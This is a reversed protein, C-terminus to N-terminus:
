DQAFLKSCRILMACVEARGAGNQPSLTTASTGDVVGNIKAWVFATNAWESVQDLDTYQSMNIMHDGTLGKGKSQAYRYLMSVLQERTIQGDPNSGDSVGSEMAWAAAKEYWTSGGSLDQGDLRALVTWAMARTMAASPAFSGDDAGNFLKAEYAGRVVGYYWDTDAVDAFPLPEEEVLAYISWHSQPLSVKGNQYTAGTIREPTGDPPLFFVGLSKSADKKEYQLTVMVTGGGFDAGKGNLTFEFATANDRLQEPLKERPVPTVTITAKQGGAGALIRASTADLTLTVGGINLTLTCDGAKELMATIAPPLSLGTAGEKSTFVGTVTTQGNTGTYSTASGSAGDRGGSVTVTSTQTTSGDTATTTETKTTVKAGTSSDTTEKIETKTTSGDPNTVTETKAPPTYSGGSSGTDEPPPVVGTDEIVVEAAGGDVQIMGEGGSVTIDTVGGPVVTGVEDKFLFKGGSPTTVSMNSGKKFSTEDGSILLLLACNGDERKATLKGGTISFHNRVFIPTNSLYGEQAVPSVSTVEGGTQTYDWVIIGTSAVKAGHEALLSYVNINDLTLNSGKLILDSNWEAGDLLNLHLSGTGSITLDGAFQVMNAISATNATLLIQSDEPLTLSSSVFIDGLTLTKSEADWHYGDATVTAGATWNGEQTFDFDEYRRAGRVTYELPPEADDQQPVLVVGGGLLGLARINAPTTDQHLWISSENYFEAGEKIILYQSLEEPPIAQADILNATYGVTFKAGTSVTLRTIGNERDGGLLIEGINIYCEGFVIYDVDKSASSSQKTFAGWQGTFGSLNIQADVLSLNAGGIDSTCTMQLSGDGTLSLDTGKSALAPAGVTTLTNTGTVHLNIARPYEIYIASSASSEPIAIVANHLTMTATEAGPNFLIYGEGTKYCVPATIDETIRLEQSSTDGEYTYDVGDVTVKGGPETPLTVDEGLALAAGPLLSLIFAFSLLMSLARKKM